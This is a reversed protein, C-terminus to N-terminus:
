GRKKFIYKGNEVCVLEWGQEGFYDLSKEDDLYPFQTAKRILYKWTQEM